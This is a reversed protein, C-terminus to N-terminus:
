IIFLKPLFWPLFLGKILEASRALRRELDAEELRMMWQAPWWRPSARIDTTVPRAPRLSQAPKKSLFCGALFLALSAIWSLRSSYRQPTAVYTM